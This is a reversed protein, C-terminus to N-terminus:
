RRWIDDPYHFLLYNDIQDITVVLGMYYFEGERKEYPTPSNFYLEIKIEDNEVLYVLDEKYAMKGDQNVVCSFGEISRPEKNLTIIVHDYKDYTLLVSNQDLIDKFGESSYALPQGELTISTINAPSRQCGVVCLMICIMWIIKKM